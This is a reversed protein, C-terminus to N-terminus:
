TNLKKSFFAFMKLLYKKNQEKKHENWKSPVFFIFFLVLCTRSSDLIM